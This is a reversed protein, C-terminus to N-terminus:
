VSLPLTSHRAATLSQKLESIYRRGFFSDHLTILPARWRDALMAEVKIFFVISTIQEQSLGDPFGRARYGDWFSEFLRALRRAGIFPRFKRLSEVNVLFYAVDYWRSNLPARLSDLDVVRPTGGSSVVINRLVCDNQTRILPLETSPKARREVEDIRRQIGAKEADTLRESHQVASRVSEALDAVTRTERSPSTDHFIRM